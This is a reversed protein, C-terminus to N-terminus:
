DFLQQLVLQDFVVPDIVAVAIHIASAFLSNLIPLLLPPQFIGSPPYFFLVLMVVFYATTLAVAALM